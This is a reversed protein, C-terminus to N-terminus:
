FATTLSPKDSALYPTPCLPSLIAVRISPSSPPVQFVPDTKGGVTKEIVQSKEISDFFSYLSQFSQFSVKRHSKIEARSEEAYIVGRGRTVHVLLLAPLWAVRDDEEFALNVADPQFPYIDALRSAASSVHKGIAILQADTLGQLHCRFGDADFFGCAIRPLLCNRFRFM